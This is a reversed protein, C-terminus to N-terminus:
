IFEAVDLVWRGEIKLYCVAIYAFFLVSGTGQDPVNDSAWTDWQIAQIVGDEIGSLYDMNLDSSEFTPQPFFSM